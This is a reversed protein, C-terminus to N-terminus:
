AFLLILTLITFAVTFIALNILLLDIDDHRPKIKEYKAREERTMDKFNM